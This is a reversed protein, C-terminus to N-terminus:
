IQLNRPSQSLIEYGSSTILLDDEVKMAGAGTTYIAPEIAITYGPELEATETDLSPWEFSTALGFGHGLRHSLSYGAGEVIRKATQHLLCCPTGPKCLEIVADYARTVADWVDLQKKSPKGIVFTRSVDAQYGHYAAGIDIMFTDGEELPRPRPKRVVVSSEDDTGGIVVPAFSPECGNRHFTYLIEAAIQGEEAGPRIMSRAAAIALDTVRVAERLLDIELSSKVRRLQNFETDLPVLEAHLSDKLYNYLQWHMYHLGLVAIKEPKEASLLDFLFPLPDLYSQWNMQGSTRCAEKLEWNFNLICTLTDSGTLIGWMDGMVPVFNTLYRFPEPRERRSCILLLDCGADQCLKWLKHRRVTLETHWQKQSRM